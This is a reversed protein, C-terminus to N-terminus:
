TGATNNTVYTNYYCSGDDNDVAEQSNYDNIWFNGTIDTYLPTYTKVGDREVLFPQRCFSFTCNADDIHLICHM